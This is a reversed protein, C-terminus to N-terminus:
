NQNSLEHKEWVHKWSKKQLLRKVAAPTIDYQASIMKSFAWIYSMKRGNSQVTGVEKLQPRSLYLLIIDNVANESLLARGNGSGSLKESMRKKSDDNHILYGKVNKNWPTIGLKKESMIRKANQTHKCGYHGNKKGAGGGGYPLYNDFLEVDEDDEIEIGNWEIGLTESLNKSSM